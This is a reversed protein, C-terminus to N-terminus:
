GVRKAKKLQKRVKALQKKYNLRDAQSHALRQRIREIASLKITPSKKAISKAVPKRITM